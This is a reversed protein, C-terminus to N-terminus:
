FQLDLLLKFLKQCEFLYIYDIFLKLETMTHLQLVSDAKLYHM